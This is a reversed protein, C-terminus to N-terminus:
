AVTTSNSGGLRILLDDQGSRMHSTCVFSWWPVTWTLWAALWIYGIAKAVASSKVLGVRANLSQVETEIMIGLAQTTFFIIAPSEKISMGLTLDPALHLLGSIYFVVLYKTYRTIPSSKPLHLIDFVVWNAHDALFRQWTQHWSIGWWNRVSYAEKFSGFWSPWMVPQSLGLGVFFIAIVNYCIESTAAIGVIWSVTGTVRKLMEESSVEGLRSFFRTRTMSIDELAPDPQLGILAMYGMCALIVGVRTLIFRGRSPIYSPDKSSFLPTGLAPRATKIRRLNWQMALAWTLRNFFSGDGGEAEDGVFINARSVHQAKRRQSESSDVKMIKYATRSLCLLAHANFAQTWSFTVILCRISANDSVALVTRDGVFILLFILIASMRRTWIQKESTFALAITCVSHAAFISGLSLGPTASGRLLDM